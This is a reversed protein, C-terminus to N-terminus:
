HGELGIAKIEEGLWSTLAAPTLNHASTWAFATESISFPPLFAGARVQFRVTDPQVRAYRLFAEVADLRARSSADARWHSRFSLDYSLRITVCCPRWRCM